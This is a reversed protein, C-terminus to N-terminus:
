IPMSWILFQILVISLLLYHMTHIKCIWIPLVNPKVQMAMFTVIVGNRMRNVSNILQLSFTTSMLSTGSFIILVVGQGASWEFKLSNNGSYKFLKKLCAPRNESEACFSMRSVRSESTYRVNMASPPVRWFVSPQYSNLLKCTGCLGLSISHCMRKGCIELSTIPVPSLSCNPLSFNLFPVTMPNKKM